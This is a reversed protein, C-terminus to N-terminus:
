TKPEIARKEDPNTKQYPLQNRVECATILLTAFGEVVAETHEWQSAPVALDPVEDPALNVDREHDKKAGAGETKAASFGSVQENLKDYRM